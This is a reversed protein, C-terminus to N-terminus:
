LLGDLALNVLLVNVVPEGFIWLFPKETYKKVIARIEDEDVIPAKEPDAAHLAVRASVLRRIQWEAGSPTIHPDFGSGSFSVLESPIDTTNQPDLTKLFAVREEVLKRYEESEPSLNTPGGAETIPRGILYHSSLFEQGILESGYAKKTGDKLTVTIVSGNAEYPFMLQGIGTVAIPYIVGCILTLSLFCVLAARFITHKKVPKVAVAQEGAAAVAPVTDLSNNEEVDPTPQIETKNKM